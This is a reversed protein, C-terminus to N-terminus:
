FNAKLPDEKMIERLVVTAYSGKDLLFCLILTNEDIKEPIIDTKLSIPRRTGKSSLEPLEEIKFLRIFDEGSMQESKEVLNLEFDNLDSNYGILPATIYARGKDIMSEYLRVNKMDVKEIGGNKFYIYDGEIIRNFIGNKIRASVIKNFLYSQYAHIFMMRVGLQISKLAGIYDDPNTVLHNALAREYRLHSPFYKLANKFDEDDAYKRADRTEDLEHENQYALYTLVAEKFDRRLINEGVKHTIPRITGFRQMGFFNPFGGKDNAEQNVETVTSKAEDANQFIDRVTVMFQNGTHDGLKIPSNSYGIFKINVDKIKIKEIDDKAVGEISMIQTSLANKDKTGSFGIRKKSIRLRQAIERVLTHTDWDMKEVSVISYIRRTKNLVAYDSTKDIKSFKEPNYIEKVVFDGPNSKIRGSIGRKDTLYCEIGVKEEIDYPTLIM